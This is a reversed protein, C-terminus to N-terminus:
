KEGYRKTSNKRGPTANSTDCIYWDALTATDSDLKGEDRCLTRTATTGASNVADAYAPSKVAEGNGALWAGQKALLEAAKSFASNKTWATSSEAVVLADIVADDQDVLYIVDTEHLYRADVAAWLDRADENVDNENSAKIDSLDTNDGLEDKVTDGEKTRMHLTIYEGAKVEAQPFEYVPEDISTSAVFLRMAGLNGDTETYLEIFEISYKKTSSSRSQVLRLENLKLKKAKPIRYNRTKVPVLLSLSNGDADEVLLDAILSKGGSLDAKFRLAVESEYEGSFEELELSEGANAENMHAEIVVVPVSFQFQVETGSTAKYSIFVPAETGMGLVKNIAMNDDCSTLVACLLATLIFLASFEKRM